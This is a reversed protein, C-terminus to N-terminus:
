KVVEVEVRAAVMGERLHRGVAGQPSEAVELDAAADPPQDSAAVEVVRGLPGETQAQQLLEGLAEATDVAEDADIGPGVVVEGPLITAKRSGLLNNRRRQQVREVSHM